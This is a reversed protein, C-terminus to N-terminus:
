CRGGSGASRHSSNTVRSTVKVRKCPWAISMLHADAMKEMDAYPRPLMADRKLVVNVVVECFQRGLRQGGVLTNPNTSIIVGKAVPHESRLVAYLIVEDGVQISDTDDRPADTNRPTSEKRAPASPAFLNDDENYASNYEEDGHDDGHDAGHDNQQEVVGLEPFRTSVHQRSNSGHQSLSEGNTRGQEMMQEMRDLRARVQELDREFAAARNEARQRALIEMQLKTSM